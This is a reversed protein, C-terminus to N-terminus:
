LEVIEYKSKFDEVPPVVDKCFAIAKSIRNFRDTNGMKQLEKNDHLQEDMCYSNAVSRDSNALQSIANRADGIRSFLRPRTSRKKTLLEGSKKIAFAQM